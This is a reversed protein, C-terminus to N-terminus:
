REKMAENYLREMRERRTEAPLSKLVERGKATLSYGDKDRDILGMELLNGIAMTWPWPRWPEAQSCALLAERQPKSLKVNM